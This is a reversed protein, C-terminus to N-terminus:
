GGSSDTLADAITQANSRMFGVYSDSPTGRPGLTGTFLTVVEVDGVRAALAEVDATSHQSEAFVAPAGADAIMGALEELQAPSTQALTSPAPIVTGIVEFGYRDAFYALSDHNTVLKRNAPAIVSLLDTIEEHLLDLESQYDALCEALMGADLEADAGLREALAPLANSVQVPDFWVHPDADIAQLQDAMTFVSAGVGASADLTDQLGEELNLGNVVILAADDMAGRDALSPEFGHPDAGAPVISRVDASDDCVLNATVDAWITTSALITPRDEPNDSLGASEGCAAALLAVIAVGLKSWMHTRIVAPVITLTIRMRLKGM